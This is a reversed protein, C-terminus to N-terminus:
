RCDALYKEVLYSLGQVPFFHDIAGDYGIGFRDETSLEAWFAQPEKMEFDSYNDGFEPTHGTGTASFRTNGTIINIRTKEGEKNKKNNFYNFRLKRNTCEIKIGVGSDGMAGYTIENKLAGMWATDYLPRKEKHTRAYEDDRKKCDDSMEKLNTAQPIPSNMQLSANFSPMMMDGILNAAFRRLVKDPLLPIIVEDGLANLRVYRAPGGAIVYEGNPLCGLALTDPTPGEGRYLAVIRGDPLTQNSWGPTVNAKLADIITTPSQSQAQAPASWAALLIIGIAAIRHGM